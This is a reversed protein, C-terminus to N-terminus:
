THFHEFFVFDPKVRMFANFGTGNAGLLEIRHTLCGTHEVYKIASMTCDYGHISTRQREANWTVALM